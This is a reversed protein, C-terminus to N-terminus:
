ENLYKKVTNLTKMAVQLDNEIQQQPVWPDKNERLIDRLQGELIEINSTVIVSNIDDTNMLIGGQRYLYELM